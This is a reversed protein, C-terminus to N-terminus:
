LSLSLSLSLRLTKLARNRRQKVPSGERNKGKAKLLCAKIEDQCAKKKKKKRGWIRSELAKL